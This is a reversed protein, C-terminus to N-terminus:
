NYRLRISKQVRFKYSELNRSWDEFLIKLTEENIIESQYRDDTCWLVLNHYNEIFRSLFM